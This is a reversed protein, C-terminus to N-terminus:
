VEQRFSTAVSEKTNKFEDTNIFVIADEETIYRYAEETVIEGYENRYRANERVVFHAHGEANIDCRLIIGKNIPRQPVNRYSEGFKTIPRNREAAKIDVDGFEKDVTDKWAKDRWQRAEETILEDDYNLKLLNKPYQSFTTLGIM